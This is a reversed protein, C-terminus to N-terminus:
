SRRDRVSFLLAHVEWWLCRASGVMVVMQASRCLQCLGPGPWVRFGVKKSIILEGQLRAIDTQAEELAGAAERAACDASQRFAQLCCHVGAVSATLLSQGCLPHERRANENELM